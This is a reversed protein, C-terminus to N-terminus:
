EMLLRLKKRYGFYDKEIATYPELTIPHNQNSKQQSRNIQNKLM